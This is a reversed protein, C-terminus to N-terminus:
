NITEWVGRAGQSLSQKVHLRYLDAIRRTVPLVEGVSATLLIEDAAAAERPDIAREEVALGEARALRLVDARTLGDLIGTALDPTALAGNKVLFVNATTAEALRGDTSLLLAEDAGRREAERRALVHPLYALTKARPDLVEPPARRPRDLLVARLGEEYFRAPYPVPIVTAVLTPAAAEARPGAVGGAVGRTLTVRLMGDEEPGWAEALARVVAAPRAPARDLPIDLLRASTALRALHRDLAYPLGAYLRMTEFCGDALTFGRDLVSVRAAAADVVNGDVWALARRM